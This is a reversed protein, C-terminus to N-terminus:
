GARIGAHPRLCTRFGQAGGYQGGGAGPRDEGRRPLTAFEVAGRRGGRGLPERLTMALMDPKDIPLTTAWSRTPLVPMSISSSRSTDEGALADGEADQRHRDDRHPGAGRIQRRSSRRPQPPVQRARRATCTAWEGATFARHAATVARDVDAATAEPITPGTRVPRRTSRPSPGATARCGGMAGDIFMRYRQLTTMDPGTDARQRITRALTRADPSPCEGLPKLPNAAARLWSGGM